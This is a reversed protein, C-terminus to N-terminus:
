SVDCAETCGVRGYRPDQNGISRLGVLFSNGSSCGNTGGTFRTEAYVDKRRGKVRLSRSIRRALPHSLLEERYGLSNRTLSSRRLQLLPVPIDCLRITAGGCFLCVGFIRLPGKIHEVKRVAPTRHHGPYSY